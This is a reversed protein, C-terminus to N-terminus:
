MESVSVQLSFNALFMFRGQLIEGDKCDKNERFLDSTEAIATLRQKDILSTGLAGYFMVQHPCNARDFSLLYNDIIYRDKIYGLNDIHEYLSSGKNPRM